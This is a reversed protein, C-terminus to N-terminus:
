IEIGVNILHLQLVINHAYAVSHSRKFWIANKKTPTKYLEDRVIDRDKIYAELLYKKGPRILALVDALEQISRPAIRSVVDYHNSLHFLKSVVSPIKLLDWNPEKKLLVRIENKNEFYDLLSLHLFDVKFYGLDEADKYPIASLGTVKDKPIEQFYTGVPHRVLEENKVMSAAVSTKFVSQADFSTQTDIDIDPM